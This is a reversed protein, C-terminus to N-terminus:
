GRRGGQDKKEGGHGARLGTSCPIWTGTVRAPALQHGWTWAYAANLVESGVLSSSQQLRRAAGPSPWITCGTTSTSCSRWNTGRTMAPYTGLCQMGILLTGSIPPGPECLVEM